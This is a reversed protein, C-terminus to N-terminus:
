TYIIVFRDKLNIDKLITLKAQPYIAQVLPNLLPSVDPGIEFAFVAKPTLFPKAEFLYQEYYKTVPDAILALHPEFTHVFPHLDHTTKVYPPNSVVLDVTQNFKSPISQFGDSLGFEINLKLAKANDKAVELASSSIDTALINWAPRQSKLALAIAGSGTGVDVVNLNQENSFKKLIWTVLEETEQRPILVHPNVKLQLDLFTTHGILYAVPEGNKLRHFSELFLEVNKAPWDLHTLLLDKSAINEHHQMLTLISYQDVAGEGLHTLAQQYLQGLTM